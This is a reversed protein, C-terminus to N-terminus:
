IKACNYVFKLHKKVGFSSFNVANAKDRKVVIFDFFRLFGYEVLRLLMKTLQLISLTISRINIKNSKQLTFNM